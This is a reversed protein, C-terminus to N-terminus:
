GGASDLSTLIKQSDLASQEPFACVPVTDSELSKSNRIQPFSAPLM